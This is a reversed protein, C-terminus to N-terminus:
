AGIQLVSLTCDEVIINRAAGSDSIIWLELTDTASLSVIGSISTSGADTGAGLTRHAHLNNFATAGNNKHVLLDIVHAAGASNRIATSVTVLYIGAVDITVHDNTHDPTAQNSQGNTDFNLVQTYGASSVSMTNTNDKVYIEGFPLGGNATTFKMDGVVDLNGDAFITGDIELDGEGYIDGDLNTHTLHTSAFASPDAAATKRVFLSGQDLHIHGGFGKIAMVLDKSLTTVLSTDGLVSVVRAPAGGNILSIFGYLANLEGTAAAGNAQAFGQYAVKRGTGTGTVASRTSVCQTSDAGMDLGFYYAGNPFGQAAKNSDINFYVPQQGVTSSFGHTATGVIEAKIIQPVALSAIAATTVLDMDIQLGILSGNDLGAANNYTYDIDVFV